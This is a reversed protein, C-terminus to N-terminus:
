RGELVDGVTYDAAKGGAPSRVEAPDPEPLAQSGGPRPVAGSAWPLDSREASPLLRTHHADGAGTSDAPVHRIGGVTYVLCPHLVYTDVEPPFHFQEID